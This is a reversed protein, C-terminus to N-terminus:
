GLYIKRLIFEVIIDPLLRKLFVLLKYDFGVIRRAPPRKKASLKLIARAVSAPPRGGLEDKEMKKVARLCDSYLPSAESIEYRRANTFGTRTDGPMILCVKIGYNRLEMRLAGSYLDLAAKSSCYHSQFPIPFVGAISGTIICLGGGRRRMHPLILSNVHLVGDYNTRMLNAVAEPPYDEGACAVGIGACHIVIGIDAEMLVSAVAAGVSSIDRVDMFVAKIEGGGPFVRKEKRPNRSVTYIVYGNEAFLEATALGIGSSGGTLFVQNGYRYKANAPGLGTAPM